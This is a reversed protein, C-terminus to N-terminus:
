KYLANYEDTFTGDENQAVFTKAILGEKGGKRASVIVSDVGRSQKPYVLIMEKAALNHNSLATLLTQLRAIKIVIWLDGGFKLAYSAAKVFDDLTASSESRSLGRGGDAVPSASTFYPPNCLVKDFSEAPIYSKIDKVDGNIIELDLGNMKASRAAMDCASKNIEVGVARKVGKKILALTSLIGSGSGLDLVSDRSALRAMNALFVSDQSFAYDDTDQILKCDKIGLDTLYESM